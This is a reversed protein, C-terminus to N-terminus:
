GAGGEARVLAGMGAGVRSTECSENSCRGECGSEGCSYADEAPHHVQGTREQDVGATEEAKVRAFVEAVVDQQAVETALRQVLRGLEHAARRRGQHVGTAIEEMIPPVVVQPVPFDVIQEYTRESMQEQRVSKFVEVIEEMFQPTPVFVVFVVQENTCHQVREQPVLRAVEATEELILLVPWDVIHEATRRQVREYTTSRAVEVCDLFKEPMPVDFIQEGFAETISEQFIFHAWTASKM